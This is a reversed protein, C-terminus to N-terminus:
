HCASSQKITCVRNVCVGPPMCDPGAVVDCGGGITAAPICIRPEDAGAEPGAEPSARCTGGVCQTLNNDCETDSPALSIQSCTRTAPDCAFGQETNCPATSANCSAGGAGLAVCTAGTGGDGTPVFGGDGVTPALCTFGSACPQTPGCAFGSTGGSACFGGACVLGLDCPTANTCAEGVKAPPNTACLGCAGPSSSTVKCLGSQCQSSDICAKGGALTGPKTGCQALAVGANFDDCSQNRLAVACDASDGPTLGTGDASLLALCQQKEQGECTVEDGFEQQLAFSDCDSLKKCIAAAQQNCGDDTTVTNDQAKACSAGSLMLSASLALVAAAPTVALVFRNLTVHKGPFFARHARM